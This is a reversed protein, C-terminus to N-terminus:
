KVQLTSGLLDLCKLDSHVQFYYWLISVSVIGNFGSRSGWWRICNLTIGQVGITKKLCRTKQEGQKYFFYGKGQSWRGKKGEKKKELKSKEKAEKRRDKKCM